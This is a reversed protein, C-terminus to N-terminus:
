ICEFTVFTGTSSFATSASFLPESRPWNSPRHSLFDSCFTFLMFRSILVRTEIGAFSFSFLVHRAAMKKDFRNRNHRGAPPSGRLARPAGVGAVGVHVRLGGAGGAVGVRFARVAAGVRFARFLRGVFGGRFTLKVVRVPPNTKGGGAREERTACERRGRGRRRVRGGGRVPRPGRARM